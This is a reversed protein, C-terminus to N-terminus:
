DCLLHPLVPGGVITPTASLCWLHVSPFIAPSYDAREAVLLRHLRPHLHLM